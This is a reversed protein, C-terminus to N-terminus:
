AHTCLVAEYLIRIDDDIDDSYMLYKTGSTVAHLVQYWEDSYM